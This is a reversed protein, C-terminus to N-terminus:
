EPVEVPVEIIEMGKFEEDVRKEDAWWCQYGYVVGGNDLEIKPNTMGVEHFIGSEPVHDGVYVGRGYIYAKNGETCQMAIVRQNIKM